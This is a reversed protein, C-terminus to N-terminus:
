NDSEHGTDPIISCLETLAIVAYYINLFSVKGHCCLKHLFRTIKQLQKLLDFMEPKYKLAKEVLAMGKDM